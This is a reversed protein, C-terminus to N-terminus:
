HRRPSLRGLGWLLLGGALLAAMGLIGFTKMPSSAGTHALQQPLPATVSTVVATTEAPTTEVPTTEVPTTEPPTTTECNEVCTPPPSSECDEECTPPPTTTTPPPTTSCDAITPEPDLKLTNAVIVVSRGHADSFSDGVSVDSNDKGTLAHNDVYIPNDGTQLVEGEGPTTVYKCVYSKHVKETDAGATSPSLFMFLGAILALVAAPAAAALPARIKM